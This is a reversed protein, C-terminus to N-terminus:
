LVRTNSLIIAWEAKAQREANAKAEKKKLQITEYAEDIKSHLAEM